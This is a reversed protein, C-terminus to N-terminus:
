KNTKYLEKIFIEAYIYLFTLYGRQITLLKVFPIFSYRLSYFCVIYIMDIFSVLLSTFFSIQTNRISTGVKSTQFIIKDNRLSIITFKM